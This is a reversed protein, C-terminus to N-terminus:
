KYEGLSRSEEKKGGEFIVTEKHKKREMKDRFNIPFIRDSLQNIVLYSKSTNNIVLNPTYNATWLWLFALFHTQWGCKFIKKFTCFGSIIQGHKWLKFQPLDFLIDQRFTSQGEDCQKQDIRYQILGNYIDWFFLFIDELYNFFENEM